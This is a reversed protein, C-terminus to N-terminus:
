SAPEGEGKLPPHGRLPRTPDVRCHEAQSKVLQAVHWAHDLVDRSDVRM